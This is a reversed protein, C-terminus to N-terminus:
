QGKNEGQQHQGNGLHAIFEMAHVQMRCVCVCVLLKKDKTEESPVTKSQWLFVAVIQIGLFFEAHPSSVSFKTQSEKWCSMNQPFGQSHWSKMTGKQQHSPLLTQSNFRSIEFCIILTAAGQGWSRTKRGEWLKTKGGGPGPKRTVVHNLVGRLIWSSWTSGGAACTQSTGNSQSDRSFKPPNEQLFTHESSEMSCTPLILILFQPSELESLAKWAKNKGQVPPRLWTTSEGASGAGRWAWSSGCPGQCQYAGKGRWKPSSIRRPPWHTPTPLRFSLHSPM